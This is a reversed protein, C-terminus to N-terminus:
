NVKEEWWSLLCRGGIHCLAGKTFLLKGTFDQEDECHTRDFLGLDSWYKRAMDTMGDILCPDTEITHTKTGITM